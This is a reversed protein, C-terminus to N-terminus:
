KSPTLTFERDVGMPQVSVSGAIKEDSEAKGAYTLTLQDGNYESKHQLTVASGDITGTIDFAGQGGTCSGTVEKEKQTFTCAFDGEQGGIFYHITWKGALQTNAAAPMASTALAALLLALFGQRM